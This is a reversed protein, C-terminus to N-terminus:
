LVRAPEIKGREDQAQRLTVRLGDFSGKVGEGKLSLAPSHSFYFINGRGRRSLTLTLTFIDFHM